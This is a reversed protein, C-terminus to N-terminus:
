ERRTPTRLGNENNELESEGNELELVEGGGIPRRRLAIIYANLSDGTLEVREPENWGTMKQLQAGAAIKDCVRIKYGSETTEYAQIVPSGSPVSDAPTRIVEAYFDLLEERTMQSRRDNERRLEAIREEVGRCKMWEDSHVNANKHNGSVQRYAESANLGSAVAQAFKEHCVKRLKPV